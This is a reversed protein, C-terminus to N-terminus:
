QVPDPSYLQVGLGGLDFHAQPRAKQIVSDMYENSWVQDIGEDWATGSLKYLLLHKCSAKM